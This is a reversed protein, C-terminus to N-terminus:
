GSALGKRSIEWALSQASIVQGATRLRAAADLWERAIRTLEEGDVPIPTGRFASIVAAADGIRHRSGDFATSLAVELQTAEAVGAGPRITSSPTSPASAGSVAQVIARLNDPELPAGREARSVMSQSVGAREALQTQSWGVARRRDRIEGPNM